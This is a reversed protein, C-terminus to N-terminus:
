TSGYKIIVHYGQTVNCLFMLILIIFVITWHLEYIPPQIGKYQYKHKFVTHIYVVIYLVIFLSSDTNM